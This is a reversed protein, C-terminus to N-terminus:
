NLNLILQAGLNKIRKRQYTPRYKQTVVQITNNLQELAQNENKKGSSRHNKAEIVIIRLHNDDLKIIVGDWEDISSGHNDTIVIKESCSLTIESQTYKVLRDVAKLDQLRDKDLKYPNENIHKELRDTINNYSLGEELNIKYYIPSDFDNTPIYDKIDIGWNEPLLLKIISFFLKDFLGSYNRMLSKFVGKKFKELEDGSYNRLFRIRRKFDAQLNRLIWNKLGIIAIGIENLSTDQVYHVDIILEKKFYNKEVSIYIRKNNGIVRELHKQLDYKNSFGFYNNVLSGSFNLRIFHKLRNEDPKGM